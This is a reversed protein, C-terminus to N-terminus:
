HTVRTIIYGSLKKSLINWQNDRTVIYQPTFELNIKDGVKVTQFLTKDDLIREGFNSTKIKVLNKEPTTTIFRGNKMDFFPDIDKMPNINDLPQFYVKDYHTMSIVTGIERRAESSEIVTEEPPNCAISAVLVLAINFIKLDM